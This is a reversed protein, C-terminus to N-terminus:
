GPRTCGTSSRRGTPGPSQRTYGFQRELAGIPQNQPPRAPVVDMVPALDLNVWAARLEAAGPPPRGDSSPPRCSARPWRPPVVSLGAGPTGAGPRRGPQRRRLGVRSTAASSALSQIAATAQRDAALGAGSTGRCFPASTILASRRPSKPPPAGAMGVLVAPRGAPGGHAARVGPRRLVGVALPVRAVPVGRTALEGRGVPQAVVTRPMPRRCRVQGDTRPMEQRCRAQDPAPGRRRQVQTQASSHPREQPATPKEIRGVM